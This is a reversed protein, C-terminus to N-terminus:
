GASPNGRCAGRKSQKESELAPFLGRPHSVHSLDPLWTSPPLHLMEARQPSISLNFIHGLGLVGISMIDPFYAVKLQKYIHCFKKSLFVLSFMHKPQSLTLSIIILWTVESDSLDSRVSM